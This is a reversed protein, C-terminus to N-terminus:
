AAFIQFPYLVLIFVLQVLPPTVYWAVIEWLLKTLPSELLSISFRLLTLQFEHKLQNIIKKPPLLLTHTSAYTSPGVLPGPAGEVRM